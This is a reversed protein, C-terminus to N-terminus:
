MAKGRVLVWVKRRRALGACFSPCQLSALTCSVLDHISLVHNSYCPSCIPTEFSFKQKSENQGKEPSCLPALFYGRLNSMPSSKKGGNAQFRSVEPKKRLSHPAAGAAPPTKKEWSSMSSAPEPCVPWGTAKPETDRSREKDKRGEEEGMGWMKPVLVNKNSHLSWQRLPVCPCVPSWGTLGQGCHQPSFKVLAFATLTIGLPFFPHNRVQDCLPAPCQSDPRLTSTHKAKSTCQATHM